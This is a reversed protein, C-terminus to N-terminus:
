SKGKGRRPVSKPPTIADLAMGERLVNRLKEHYQTVELPEHPRVVLLWDTGVPLDHQMLRYAERIRRKLLNRRVATGCKRSVSIGMRSLGNDRRRGAFALLPHSSRKKGAAYLLDFTTRGTLRQSKQLKYRSTSM